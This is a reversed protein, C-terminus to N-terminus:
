SATKWWRTLACGHSRHLGLCMASTPPPPSEQGAAAPGDHMLYPPAPQQPPPLWTCQAPQRPPNGGGQGSGVNAGGESADQGGEVNGGSCEVHDTAPAAASPPTQPRAVGLATGANDPKRMAQQLRRMLSISVQEQASAPVATIGAAHAHTLAEAEEPSGLDPQAAAVETGAGRKGFLTSPQKHRGPPQFQTRRHIQSPQSHPGAPQCSSPWEAAWMGPGPAPAHGEEEGEGGREGGTMSDPSTWQHPARPRKSSASHPDNELDCDAVNYIDLGNEAQEMWESARGMTMGLLNGVQPPAQLPPLPPPCPACM